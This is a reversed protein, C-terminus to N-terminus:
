SKSEETAPETESPAEAPAAEASEGGAAAIAQAPAEEERLQSVDFEAEPEHASDPIAECTLIMHRLVSDALDLERTIANVASTPGNFYVLLYTGRSQHRIPYALKRESWLKSSEIKVGHKTLMSAVKEKTPEWGKKVERNDLLLMCEYNRNVTECAKPAAVQV